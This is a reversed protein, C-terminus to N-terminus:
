FAVEIFVRYEEAENTDAMFVKYEKNCANEQQLNKTIEFSLFM